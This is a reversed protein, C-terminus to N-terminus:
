RAGWTIVVAGTRSISSIDISQIWPHDESCSVSDGVGVQYTNTATIRTIFENTDATNFAFRAGEASTNEVKIYFSSAPSSLVLRHVTNSAVTRTNEGGGKDKVDRGGALVVCAFVMPVLVCALVAVKMVKQDFYEVAKRDKM